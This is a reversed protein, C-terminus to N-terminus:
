RVLIKNFRDIWVKTSQNGDFLRKGEETALYKKIKGYNLNKGFYAKTKIWAFIFSEVWAAIKPQGVINWMEIVERGTATQEEVDKKTLTYTGEKIKDTQNSGALSSAYRWQYKEKEEDYFFMGLSEVMEKLRIYDAKGEKIATLIYAGLVWGDRENNLKQVGLHDTINSPVEVELVLMKGQWGYKQYAEIQAAGSTNGDLVTNTRANVIISNLMWDTGKFAISQAIQSVREPDTGNGRNFVYWHYKKMFEEPTVWKVDKPTVNSLETDGNQVANAVVKTAKASKTTQNTM